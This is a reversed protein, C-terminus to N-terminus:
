NILCILLFTNMEYGSKKNEESSSSCHIIDKVEVITLQADGNTKIEKENSNNTDM